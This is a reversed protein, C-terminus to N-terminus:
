REWRVRILQQNRSYRLTLTGQYAHRLAEGIGQALHMDTTTVEVTSNKQAVKMVRALPHEAKA